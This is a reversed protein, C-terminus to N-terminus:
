YPQTTFMTMMMPIQLKISNFYTKEVGAAGPRWGIGRSRAVAGLGVWVAARERDGAFPRADCGFKAFSSKEFNSERLRCTIVVNKTKEVTSHEIRSM